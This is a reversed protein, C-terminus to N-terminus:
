PRRPADRSDARAGLVQKKLLPPSNIVSFAAANM